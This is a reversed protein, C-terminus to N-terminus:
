SAIETSQLSGNGKVMDDNAIRNRIATIADGSLTEGGLVIKLGNYEPPNHSGTIMIGSGTDLYHNAFYLVPTPVMGIDIVDQGSDTLGKALVRSFSPSSNRGDRGIVISQQGRAHAESALARGIQYIGDETLTDRVIGRIDYARFISDPPVSASSFAMDGEIEEVIIPSDTRQETMPTDSAATEEGSIAEEGQDSIEEGEVTQAQKTDTKATGPRGLAPMLKRRMLVLTAVILGALLLSGVVAFWNGTKTDSGDAIREGEQSWYSVVWSTLPVPVRVPKIEQLRGTAGRKALVLPRGSELPQQVELYGDKMELGELAANIADVKSSLHIAGLFQGDHSRIPRVIAIHQAPRGFLHVEAKIPQDTSEAAQMMELSAYTLPPESSYDVDTGPTLLRLKLVSNLRTELEQAKTALAVQDHNKLLERLESDEAIENLREINDSLGITVRQALRKARSQLLLGRDVETSPQYDCAPVLGLAVLAVIALGVTLMSELRGKDFRSKRLQDEIM